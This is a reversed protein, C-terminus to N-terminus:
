KCEGPRLARQIRPVTFGTGATLRELDADTLDGASVADVVEGVFDIFIHCRPCYNDRVDDPHRLPTKCLPCTPETM